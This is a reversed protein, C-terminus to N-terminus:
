VRKVGPQLLLSMRIKYGRLFEVAQDAVPIAQSSETPQMTISSSCMSPSSPRPGVSSISIVRRLLDHGDACISPSLAVTPLASSIAEQSPALSTTLSKRGTGYLLFAHHDLICSLTRSSFLHLHRAGARNWLYAYHLLVRSSSSASVGKRNLLVFRQPQRLFVKLPLQAKIIRLHSFRVQRLLWWFVQRVLLALKEIRSFARLTRSSPPQM